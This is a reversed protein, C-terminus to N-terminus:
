EHLALLPVHTHFAMRKTTSESFLKEFFSKQRPIMVVMDMHMKSVYDNIGIVVEDNTVPHFSHDLQKLADDLRLGEVAIELDIIKPSEKVVNLIYIHSDFMAAMEKLPWLLSKHIHKYDCALVIKKPIKFKVHQDIAMVPCTSKRILSTTVSGILKETLYGAGQMGMVILDTKNEKAFLNIEEVAFGCKCAYEIALANGHKLRINKKIKKLNDIASQELDGITPLAIVAETTIVPIDYAHFLILKSQTIKAIQVAYEIANDSIESFDTPVLITKM